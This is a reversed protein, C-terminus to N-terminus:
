KGHSTDVNRVGIKASGERKFRLVSRFVSRWVPRSRPLVIYSM